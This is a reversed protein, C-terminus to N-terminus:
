NLIENTSNKKLWQNLFGIDLYKFQIFSMLSGMCDYTPQALLELVPKLPYFLRKKAYKRKLYSLVPHDALYISAWKMPPVTGM